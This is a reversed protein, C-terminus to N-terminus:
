LGWAKRLAPLQAEANFRTAALERARRRVADLESRSAALRDLAAAMGGPEYVIGM